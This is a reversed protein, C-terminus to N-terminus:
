RLEVRKEGDESGQVLDRDRGVQGIGADEAARCTEEPGERGKEVHFSM